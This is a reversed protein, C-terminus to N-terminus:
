LSVTEEACLKEQWAKAEAKTQTAVSGEGEFFYHISIFRKVHGRSEAPLLSQLSWFNKSGAKKIAKYVTGPGSNYAALVLLWDGFEGYLYRLYKAAAVTSRYTHTREDTKGAIKLGLEKATVPMLQWLGRAGVRSKATSHLESEVIALYKLQLPIGYQDFVKEITQFYLRSKNRMKQLFEEEKKVYAHVFGAVHKSLTIKTVITEASFSDTTVTRVTGHFLVLPTIKGHIPTGPSSYGVAPAMLLLSHAFLM